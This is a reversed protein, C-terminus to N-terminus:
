VIRPSSSAESLATIDATIMATSKSGKRRRMLAPTWLSTSQSAPPSLVLEDGRSVSSFEYCGCERARICSVVALRRGFVRSLHEQGNSLWAKYLPADQGAGKDEQGPEKAM